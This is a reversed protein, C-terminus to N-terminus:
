GLFDKAVALWLETTLRLSEQDVREDHGHVTAMREAFSFRDSYLGFGYATTGLRRFFRADTMGPMLYPVCRAGPLLKATARQLSDWLPTDIPSANAVGRSDVVFEVSSWLDGLADELLSLIEQGDQGPLTRIDLKIQAYDPIVNNKVGAQMVTPALTLHTCAHALRLIVPDLESLGGERIKEPDLLAGALPAPLELAEVMLRWPEPVRALPRCRALRAVVEAAKILANDTGFPTSGHGPTGRIVLTCWLGGKEAVKVSVRPAGPASFPLHFGGGETILYDCRVAEPHHDTLWEAGYTGGAEEDAVALYILDGAPSFGEAGLHRLAVAMTATLSQMDLAGRGWIEGDILEGGFPDHRWCEATVPVVDTHGMLLLSPATADRGELRAILSARGPLPEYRELHLGAGDLYSALLDANRSEGGSGPSGDNVCANRILHQLIETAEGLLDSM